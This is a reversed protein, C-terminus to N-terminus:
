KKTLSFVVGNNGTAGNETTGYLVGNLRVLGASYESGSTATFAKLVKEKGKVIEYIVGCGCDPDGGYLTTSYLKDGVLLMDGVPNAGDTGGTFNYLTTLAGDPALKFVTGAGTTGGYKTSGYLSGDKDIALGSYLFGGDSNGTFNYLASFTGDKAIKYLTGWDYVGGLATVGYLNGAKDSVVGQEPGDGDSGDFTHLVTVEGKANFKLVTGYGAAGGGSSTGYFNGKKDQILNGTAFRAEALHFSHVVTYTGDAALKWIIGNGTSGGELTTGIMDGNPELVMAGKPTRGDGGAGFSHLLSETGDTAVKFITGFGNGGGYSGGEETTGYINGASDLTVKAVSGRGDNPRGAFSHLVTYKAHSGSLAAGAVTFSSNRGQAALQHKKAESPHASASVSGNLAILALALGCVAVPFKSISRYM